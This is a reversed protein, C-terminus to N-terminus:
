ETAVFLNIYEKVNLNTGFEMNHKKCRYYYKQYIRNYDKYEKTNKVTERYRKQYEKYQQERKEYDVPKKKLVPIDGASEKLLNKLSKGM